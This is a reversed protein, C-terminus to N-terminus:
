NAPALTSMVVLRVEGETETVEYDLICRRINPYFRLKRQIMHLVLQKIGVIVEPEGLIATRIRMALVRIRSGGALVRILSRTIASDREEEPLMSANWAVVGAGVIGLLMHPRVPSGRYPEIFELLIKSMRQDFANRNNQRDGGSRKGQRPHAAKRPSTRVCTM